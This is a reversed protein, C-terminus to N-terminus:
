AQSYSLMRIDSKAFQIANFIAMGNDWCGGISHLHILIPKFNGGSVPQDLVCLNKVLTTAQRYDVGPESEEDKTYYSHLYIDRLNLNISHNHADYLVQDKSQRSVAARETSADM